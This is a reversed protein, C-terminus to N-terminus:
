LCNTIPIGKRELLYMITFSLLALLGICAPVSLGLMSALATAAVEIQSQASFIAYVASFSAGLENILQKTWVPLESEVAEAAPLNRVPKPEKKVAEVEEKYLCTYSSGNWSFIGYKGLDRRAAGFAESFSGGYVRPM